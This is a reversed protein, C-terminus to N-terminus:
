QMFSNNATTKKDIRYAEGYPHTRNSKREIWLGDSTFSGFYSLSFYWEEGNDKYQVLSSLFGSIWNFRQTLVYDTQRTLSDNLYFKITSGDLEIRKTKFKSVTDSAGWGTGSWRWNWSNNLNNLTQVIASQEIKKRYWLSQTALHSSTDLWYVRDFIQGAKRLSDQQFLKVAYDFFQQEQGKDIPIPDFYKRFENNLRVYPSQGVVLTSIFIALILHLTKMLYCTVGSTNGIIPCCCEQLKM